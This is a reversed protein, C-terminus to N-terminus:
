KARKVYVVFFLWPNKTWNPQIVEFGRTAILIIHSYTLSVSHINM